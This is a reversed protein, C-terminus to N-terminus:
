KKKKLCFVGYSHRMLSQLESTHEESRLACQEASIRRGADNLHRGTVRARMETALDAGLDVIVQRAPVEGIQRAPQRWLQFRIDGSIVRGLALPPALIEHRATFDVLDIM